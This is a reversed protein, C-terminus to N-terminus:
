GDLLAYLQRVRQLAAKREGHLWAKLDTDQCIDGYMTLKDAELLASSLLQRIAELEAQTLPQQTM